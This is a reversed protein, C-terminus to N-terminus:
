TTMYTGAFIIDHSSLLLQGIGTSTSTGSAGTYRVLLQNSNPQATVFLTSVGVSLGTFYGVAIASHLDSTGDVSFPLNDITYNVANGVSGKSVNIYAQIHVIRGIKIYIAYRTGTSTTSSGSANNFARPTWTGEEYDDLANAAATDGNFTLGGGSLMRMKESGASGFLINGESRIRLDDTSGSGFAGATGLYAKTTGSSNKLRIQVDGSEQITLPADPDDTKIGVGTSNIRVREVSNTGLTLINSGPSSISTGTGLSLQGGVSIDTSIAVNVANINLNNPSEITPTGSASILNIKKVGFTKDAM